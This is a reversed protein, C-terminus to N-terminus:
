KQQGLILEFLARQKDGGKDGEKEGGKDGGKPFLAPIPDIPPVGIGGRVRDLEDLVVLNPTAEMDRPPAVVPGARLDRVEEHRGCRVADSVRGATPTTGGRPPSTM